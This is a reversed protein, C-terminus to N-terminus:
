MTFTLQGRSSFALVNQPLALCKRLRAIQKILNIQGSSVRTQRCRIPKEM